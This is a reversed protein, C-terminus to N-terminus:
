VDPVFLEVLRDIDRADVYVAYRHALQQIEVTALWRETENV